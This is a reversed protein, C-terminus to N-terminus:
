MELVLTVNNAAHWCSSPILCFCCFFGVLVWFLCVLCFVFLYFGRFRVFVFVFGFFVFFLLFFLKLKCKMLNRLLNGDKQEKSCKKSLTSKLKNLMLFHNTFGLNIILRHFLFALKDLISYSTRDFYSQFVLIQFGSLKQDLSPQGEWPLFTIKLTREM